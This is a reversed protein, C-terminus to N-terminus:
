WGQAFLRKAMQRLQHTERTLTESASVAKMTQEYFPQLGNPIEEMKDMALKVTLLKWLSDKVAKDAEAPVHWPFAEAESLSQARESQLTSLRRFQTLEVDEQFSDFFGLMFSGGKPIELKGTPKVFVYNRTDSHKFQFAGDLHMQMYMFENAKVVRPKGKETPLPGYDKLAKTLREYAFAAEAKTPESM